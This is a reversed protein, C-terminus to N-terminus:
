PNSTSRVGNGRTAGDRVGCDWRAPRLPNRPVVLRPSSGSPQPPGRVYDGGEVPAPAEGHGSERIGTARRRGMPMPGRARRGDADTGESQAWLCRDGARRRGADTGRGAGVQVPGEGHARAGRTARAGDLKRIGTHWNGRLSQPPVPMGTRHGTAPPQVPQRSFPSSPSVPKVPQRASPKVPKVPQRASPSVASRAQRAQRASPSVPQRSFPSSPSSPSVPQRSSPSFPKVPQVTAPSQQGSEAPM